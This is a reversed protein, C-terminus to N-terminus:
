VKDPKDPKDPREPKDPKDPKDPKEPREPVAPIDPRQPIAAVEPREPKDPKDPKDPKEPREPVAPVDPRQPIVAVEPREPKGPTDPREPVAPVDPRQPTPLLDPHEPAPPEVPAEPVGPLDPANRSDEVTPQGQRDPLFAVARVAALDLRPRVTLGGNPGDAAASNAPVAMLHSTEDSEIGEVNAANALAPPSDRTNDLSGRVSTSERVHARQFNSESTAGDFKADRLPPAQSHVPTIVPGASAPLIFAPMAFDLQLAPTVLEWQENGIALVVAAVAAGVAALKWKSETRRPITLPLARRGTNLASARPTASLKAGTQESSDRWVASVLAIATATRRERVPDLALQLASWQSATSGSPPQTTADPPRAPDIQRGGKLHVIMAALSYVDDRPDAPAGNRSEPSAFAPTLSRQWNWCAGIPMGALDVLRAHGDVVLVNSPKVDGHVFGAGHYTSLASAIERMLVPFETDAGAWHMPRKLCWSELTEGDVWEAVQYWWAGERGHDLLRVLGPHASVRILRALIQLDFNPALDLPVLKLAVSTGRAEDVARWVASM